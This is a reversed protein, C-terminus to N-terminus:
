CESESIALIQRSEGKSDPECMEIGPSDTNSSHEDNWSMPRGADSSFIELNQNEYQRHEAIQREVRTVSRRTNAFRWKLPARLRDAQIGQTIRGVKESDSSAPDFGEASNSCFRGHL